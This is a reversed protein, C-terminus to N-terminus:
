FVKFQKCQWARGKIPIKRWHWSFTNQAPYYISFYFTFNWHENWFIAVPPWLRGGQYCFLPDIHCYKLPDNKFLFSEVLLYTLRLNTYVKYNWKLHFWHFSISHVGGATENFRKQVKTKWIKKSVTLAMPAKLHRVRFQFFIQFNLSWDVSYQTGAPGVHRAQQAGHM